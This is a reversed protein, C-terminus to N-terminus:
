HRDWSMIKETHVSHKVGIKHKITTELKQNDNPTSNQTITIIALYTGTGVLKGKKNEGNWVFWLGKGTKVPKGTLKKVFKGVADYLVATGQINVYGAIKSVPEVILVIGNTETLNYNEIVKQPITAKQPDFPNPYAVVRYKYAQAKFQLESYRNKSDQVNGKTDSIGASPNICVSDGASPFEKGIIDIISFMYMSKEDTSSYELDMSYMKGSVPDFFTFPERSLPKNIKESLTARLSDTGYESDPSRPIFEARILVPAMSDNIALNTKKIVSGESTETYAVLLVDLSDTSTNPETGAKQKVRISFGNNNVSFDNQGYIFKRHEPLVVTNYLAKLLSSDPAVPMDVQISDILGDGDNDFYAASQITYLLYYSIARRINEPNRQENGLADKVGATEFINVSDGRQPVPVGILTTVGFVSVSDGSLHTLRLRYNGNINSFITLPQIEEIKKIGESFTVEFTDTLSRQANDYYTASIIVPAMSDQIVLEAQPLEGGSPLGTIREFYLREEPYVGTFPITSSSPEALIIDFGRAAPVITDIEISRSTFLSVYPRILSVEQDGLRETGQIVRIIDPYGNANTDLYYASRLAIDRPESISASIRITDLPLLSNRYVAIVSDTFANQLIQDLSPEGYEREFQASYYETGKTARLVLSDTKLSNYITIDVEDAQLDLPPFFRVELNKQNTEVNKIETDKYYFKLEGQQTCTKELNDPSSSHMVTITYFRTEVKNIPADWKITYSINIDTYKGLLPIRQPMIALSDNFVSTVIGNITLSEPKSVYYGVGDHVSLNDLFINLLESERGATKWVRSNPNSLSYGNAKINDTMTQIQAPIPKNANVFFATFTAPVNQGDIYDFENLKRESDVNQSIGDSLLIIYQKEKRNVATQFAKRAAEFALSIDTTGNYGSNNGLSDMRGTPSYNGNVLKYNGGIDKESTSLLISQKLKQVASIGNISDSLRIFPIYSDHWRPDLQTYFPDDNFNHLLQNSFVALGIESAPSHAAISDIIKNALHYRVATSDMYSMSASQDILIFLSITDPKDGGSLGERVSDPACHAFSSSLAITNDSVRITDNDFNGPCDLRVTCVDAAFLCGWGLGVINLLKAIQNLKM